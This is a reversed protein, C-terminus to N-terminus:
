PGSRQRPVSAWLQFGHGVPSDVTLAGGLAALREELGTLGHGRAIVAAGRGDDRVRVELAEGASSVEVWVNRAGSHRVANTLAEQVVRFLAHLREPDTLALGDAVRLHVQPSALPEALRELARRLDVGREERLTSVVARVEGLMERAIAQASTIAATGGSTAHAVELQLTLATLHHGIADHLERSIRLREAARSTDDLLAQTALLEANALALAASAEAERRALWAAGAAFLQFAFTALGSFVAPAGTGQWWLLLIQALSQAVLWALVAWWAGVFLALQGAVVVALVGAGNQRAAVLALALVAELLLAGVRARPGRHRATAWLFALLFALWLGVDLAVASSARGVAGSLVSASFLIAWTLAGAVTLLWPSRRLM